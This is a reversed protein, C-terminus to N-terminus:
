MAEEVHCLGPAVVRPQPPDCNYSLPVTSETGYRLKAWAWVRLTQRRAVSRKRLGSASTTPQRRGMQDHRGGCCSQKLSTVRYHSSIERHPKLFSHMSVDLVVPFRSARNHCLGTYALASWRLLVAEVAQQQVYCSGLCQFLLQLSLDTLNQM